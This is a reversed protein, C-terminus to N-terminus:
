RRRGSLMVISEEFGIGCEFVGCAAAFTLALARGGKFIGNFPFIEVSWPQATGDCAFGEIFGYGDIFLRGVKQRASVEVFSFEVDGSCTITGRVTATGTHANFTGRPDVTLTLEPPPPAEVVSIELTGGNGGGDFQDDFALIAYTVGSTAFWGTAGPGCNEITWNGPSGSAVIVGASYDSGSVDVVIGVDAGPTIEYWVSADTAPAGCNLNINNDDADSTAESTDVSDSFGLAVTQRGAYTDNSPPAALAPAAFAFSWVILLGALIPLRKRIM